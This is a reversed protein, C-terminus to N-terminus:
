SPEKRLSRSATLWATPAWFPFRQLSAAVSELAGKVLRNM